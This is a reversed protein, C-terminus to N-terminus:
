TTSIIENFATKFSKYFLEAREAIEIEDDDVERLITLEGVEDEIQLEFQPEYEATWSHYKGKKGTDHGNLVILNNGTWTGSAIKSSVESIGDSWLFEADKLQSVIKFDIVVNQTSPNIFYSIKKNMILTKKDDYVKKLAQLIAKEIKSDYSLLFRMRPIYPNEEKLRRVGSMYSNRLHKEENEKLGTINLSDTFEYFDQLRYGAERARDMLVNLENSKLAKKKISYGNIIQQIEDHQLNSIMDDICYKAKNAREAEVTQHLLYTTYSVFDGVTEISRHDLLNNDAEEYCIGLKKLMSAVQFKKNRDCARVLIHWHTKQASKNHNIAIVQFVPSPMLSISNKLGAEGNTLQEEYCTIALTATVSKLDLKKIEGKM